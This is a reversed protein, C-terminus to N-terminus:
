VKTEEELKRMDDMTKGFWEDMWCVVQRHGNLFVDRLAVKKNVIYNIFLFPLFSFYHFTYVKHIYAEGATQVGWIRLLVSCEKYSCMIPDTNELM